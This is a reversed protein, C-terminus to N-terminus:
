TVSLGKTIVNWTWSSSGHSTVGIDGSEPKRPDRRSHRKHMGTHTSPGVSENTAAGAVVFSPPTM